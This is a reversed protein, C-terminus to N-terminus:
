PNQYYAEVAMDFAYLDQTVKGGPQLAVSKVDFLRINNELNKLFERFNEYSGIFRMQIQVAGYPKVISPGRRASGSRADLPAQSHSGAAVSFSQPTLTNKLLLGNLQTLATGVDPTLPIVFSIHDRLEKDDEYTTKLAKVQNVVARQSDVFQERSLEEARIKQADSYAPRVFAFFVMFAAALLVLSFFSSVLRKTSQKM